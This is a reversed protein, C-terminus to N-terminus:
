HGATRHARPGRGPQGAPPQLRGGRPDVLLPDEGVLGDQEGTPLQPALRPNDVCYWANRAFTFTEPATAPGINVGGESWADSRFV